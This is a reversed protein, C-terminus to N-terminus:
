FFGATVTLGWENWTPIPKTWTATERRKENKQLRMKKWERLKWTVGCNERKKKVRKM